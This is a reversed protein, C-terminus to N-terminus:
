TELCACFPKIVRMTKQPDRVGSPSLTQRNRPITTAAPSIADGAFIMDSIAIDLAERLKKVGYAEQLSGLKGKRGVHSAMAAM